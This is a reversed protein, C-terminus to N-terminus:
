RGGGGRRHTTASLTWGPLSRPVDGAEREKRNRQLAAARGDQTKNKKNNTTITTTTITITTTTTDAPQSRYERRVPTLNSARPLFLFYQVSCRQARIVFQNIAAHLFSFFLFSFFLFLLSFTSLLALACGTIFCVGYGPPNKM